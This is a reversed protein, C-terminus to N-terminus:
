PVISATTQIAFQGRHSLKSSIQAHAAYTIDGCKRKTSLVKDSGSLHLNRKSTTRASIIAVTM